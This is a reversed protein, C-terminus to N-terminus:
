TYLPARCEFAPFDKRIECPMWAEIVVDDAIAIFAGGMGFSRAGPPSFNFPAPFFQAPAPRSGPPRTPDDQAAVTLPICALIVQILLSKSFRNSSLTRSRM